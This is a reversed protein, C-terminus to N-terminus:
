SGSRGPWGRRCRQDSLPRGPFFKFGGIRAFPNYEDYLWVCRRLAQFSRCKHELREGSGRAWSVQSNLNRM